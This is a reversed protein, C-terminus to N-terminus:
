LGVAARPKRSRKPKSEPTYNYTVLDQAFFPFNHRGEKDQKWRGVVEPKVPIKVLPIGLFQELKKLTEDQDQVFDELRITTWRKPKPTARVLEVQYKWSIARMERVDATKPYKIGFDNLNDTLHAGLISDRPDRVWNIYHLDPFMRVIWPFVLTTEPIKWGKRLAPSNLVSSLYNEILKTFRPDIKMTHLKSFDWALGGKHKVYRAMVRCAEYMDEPPLLDGSKNLTDGMYVGSQSLTHSIARTGSHGRGIITTFLTEVEDNPHHEGKAAYKNKAQLKAAQKPDGIHLTESAQKSTKFAGVGKHGHWDGQRHMPNPNGTEKERRAIWANMRATLKKVVDPNADAVNCDEHPDEILNYLEVKPKFHFDPELAIILKWQPTRWGHKRMWTCETIYFESEFSTVEGRVLQMLSPGDFKASTKIGALELITPVLHKHQNYGAIRKGGPMKKPYRIILPVHLTVDYLGHHDYWCDHDYLTEGHDGNIVVITNDLIGLKELQTFIRAICADMYALAGDYQADIYHRDTCGPPFWTAFYDRFPKFNMVPELSKNKPDTESGHYFIRDFPEPPLYPSHPDMHRLMVFFPKGRRAEEALRDIEPQAVENLRQAKPSRGADWSGWAEFEIYKEFGRSAPNWGFGVCTTNYGAKRVIEALTNVKKTLGGQHRLAVVETAFCDRGTLMSSYAPTTPIHASYTKEFLTAGQAFKDIHPTTLRPYGYCSMHDALISDIAFLVINPRTDQETRVPM